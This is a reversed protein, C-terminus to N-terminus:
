VCGAPTEGRVKALLERVLRTPLGIVTEVDGELSSVFGAAWGQVAYGGAKGIGEESKAYEAAEDETIDRFTVRAVDSAVVPVTAGPAVVAVSTVVEHTKGSIARLMMAVEDAEGAKPLLADGLAVVTDAALVIAEPRAWAVARAKAEARAQSTAVPSGALIGDEEIGPDVVEFALGM